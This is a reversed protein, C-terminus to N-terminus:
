ITGTGDGADTGGGVVCTDFCFNAAFRPRTVVHSVLDREAFSVLANAFPPKYERSTEVLILQSGKAMLPIQSRYFVLDAADLSRAGNAAESWKFELDRNVEDACNATCTVVSVRIWSNESGTYTMYRFVKHLGDIYAQNVPVTERSLMDSITYNARYSTNQVKYADFFTFTATAAWFLMPFAFVAEVSVSGKQDSKFFGIIEVIFKKM